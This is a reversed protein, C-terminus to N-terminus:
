WPRCYGTENWEKAYRLGKLFCLRQSTSQLSDSTATSLLALCKSPCAMGRATRGLWAANPPTVNMLDAYDEVKTKVAQSISMM